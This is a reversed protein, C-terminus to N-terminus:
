EPLIGISHLRFLGPDASANVLFRCSFCQRQQPFGRVSETAFTQLWQKRHQDFGHFLVAMQLEIRCHSILYQSDTCCSYVAQQTGHPFPDLACLPSSSDGRCESLANRNTGKRIPVVWRGPVQFRIQDDM